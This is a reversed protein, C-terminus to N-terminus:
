CNRPRTIKAARVGAGAGCLESDVDVPNRGDHRLMNRFTNHLITFLWAKLNTGRQFQAASRFAKLYTDQVLDEADAPRRTLRLATGYLSDVYSLAERAFAEDASPKAGGWGASIRGPLRILRPRAAAFCWPTSNLVGLRPSVGAPGGKIGQITLEKRTRGAVRLSAPVKRPFTGAVKETATATRRRHRCTAPPHCFGPPRSSRPGIKNANAPEASLCM